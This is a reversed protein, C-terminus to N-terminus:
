EGIGGRRPPHMELESCRLCYSSNRHTVSGNKDVIDDLIRVWDVMRHGPVNCPSPALQAELRTCENDMDKSQALAEVMENEAKALRKEMEAFASTLLDVATKWAGRELAYELKKLLGEVDVIPQGIWAGYHLLWCMM